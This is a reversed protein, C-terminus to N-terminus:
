SAATVRINKNGPWRERWIVNLCPMGLSLLCCPWSSTHVPVSWKWPLHDRFIQIRQPMMAKAVLILNKLPLSAEKKSYILLPNPTSKKIRDGQVDRVAWGAGFGREPSGLSDSLEPSAIGFITATVKTGQRQSYGFFGCAWPFHTWM